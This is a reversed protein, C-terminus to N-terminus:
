SKIHKKGSFIGIMDSRSLRTQIKCVKILSTCDVFSIHKSYDIIIFYKAILILMFDSKLTRCYTKLTM